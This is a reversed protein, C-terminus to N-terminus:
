SQRTPCFGLSPSSRRTTGMPPTNSSRPMSPSATCNPSLADLVTPESQEPLGHKTAALANQWNTWRQEVRPEHKRFADGRIPLELGQEKAWTKARDRHATGGLFSATM